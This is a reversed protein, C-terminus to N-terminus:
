AAATALKQFGYAGPLLVVHQYEPDSEQIKLIAGIERWTAVLGHPCAPLDAEIARHLKGLNYCPVAAYMHHEIHFNMHWYFFQLVPNTTFTRCCLRFDSVDDQLGIHQTSNALGQLWGGYAPTFTTLFPLVWLHTLGSALIILMHGALMGRAWHIAARAEASGVPFLTKEWEGEFRGCAVRITNRIPWRFGDWHIIGHVLIRRLIVKIPLTVELDDPQHLTYRHHRTHSANFMEYNIWGLFSILRTFFVNLTKTKFVTGHGLEHVANIHFACVMGHIFIFLLTIGILCHFSSYIAAGGTLCFMALYGLTQLWGKFDSRQHLAKMVKPDLPSRYWSIAKPGPEIEQM